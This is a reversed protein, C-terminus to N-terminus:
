FRFSCISGFTWFGLNGCESTVIFSKIRAGTNTRNQRSNRLTAELVRKMRKILHRTSASCLLLVLSKNRGVDIQLGKKSSSKMKIILSSHSFLYTSDKGKSLHTRKISKWEKTSPHWHKHPKVTEEGWRRRRRRRKRKKSFLGHM